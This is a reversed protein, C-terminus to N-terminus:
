NGKQYVQKLLNESLYGTLIIDNQLQLDAILNMINKSEDSEVRGTGKGVL